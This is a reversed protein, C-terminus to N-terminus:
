IDEYRPLLKDMKEQIKKVSSGSANMYSKKLEEL